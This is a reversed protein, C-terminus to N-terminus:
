DWGSRMHVDIKTSFSERLDNVFKTLQNRSLKSELYLRVEPPDFYSKITSYSFPLNSATQNRFETLSAVDSFKLILTTADGPAAREYRSIPQYKSNAVDRRMFSIEQRLADFSEIVFEDLTLNRHELKPKDVVGFHRLFPSYEKDTKSKEFTDKIKESLKESFEVIRHYNLDRPYLLHEIPSTDFSFATEFDKVIITPKDFTLRIGLEFMVNPNKGSIDCVIMDNSYINTVITRHIFNVESANSVLDGKFGAKQISNLLITKVESWHQPSCGDIESIPMIIGCTPLEAVMEKKNEKEIANKEQDKKEAM